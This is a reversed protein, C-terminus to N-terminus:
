VVGGRPGGGGWPGKMQAALWAPPETADRSTVLSEQSMHSTSPASTVNRDTTKETQSNTSIQHGSSEADTAQAADSPAEAPEIELIQEDSLVFLDTPKSEAPAM